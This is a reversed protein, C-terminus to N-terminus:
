KMRKLQLYKHYYLFGLKIYEKNLEDLTKHNELVADNYASHLEKNSPLEKCCCRNNIAKDFKDILNNEYNTLEELTQVEIRYTSFEKILKQIEKKDM